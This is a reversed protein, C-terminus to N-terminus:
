TGAGRSKRNPPLLIHKSRTTSIAIGILEGSAKLEIFFRCFQNKEFRTRERQIWDRARPESFNAYGQVSFESLGEEHTLRM